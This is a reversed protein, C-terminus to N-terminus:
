FDSYTGRMCMPTSFGAADIGVEVLATALSLLGYPPNCGSLGDKAEPYVLAVRDAGADRAPATVEAGTM